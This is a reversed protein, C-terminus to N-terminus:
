VSNTKTTLPLANKRSTWFTNQFQGGSVLYLLFNIAHNANSLIVTFIWWFVVKAQWHTRVLWGLPDSVTFFYMIRIPSVCILHCFSVTLLMATLSNTSNDKSQVESNAKLDMREKNKQLLKFIILTNCIALCSFPILFRVMFEQWVHINVFYYLLAPQKTAIKCPAVM